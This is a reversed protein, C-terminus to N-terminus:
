RELVRHGCKLGFRSVAAEVTDEDGANAPRAAELWLDWLTKGGGADIEIFKGTAPQAGWGSHGFTLGNSSEPDPWTANPIGAEMTMYLVYNTDNHWPGAPAHSWIGPYSTVSGDGSITFTCRLNKGRPWSQQSYLWYLDWGTGEEEALDPRQANQLVWNGDVSVVTYVNPPSVNQYVVWKATDISGSSWDEFFLPAGHASLALGCLCAACLATIKVKTNM